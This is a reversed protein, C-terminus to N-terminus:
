RRLLHTILSRMEAPKVPKLLLECRAEKVAEAVDPTRDATLVVAPLGEGFVKRLLRVSKLGVEGNDLHYDALVIDPAPGGALDSAESFNRVAKTECGWQRLLTIMGAAIAKDNEIIVARASLNMQRIPSQIPDGPQRALALTRPVRLGFCSGRGEYSRLFIDHKLATSMRRVISLGLGFGLSKGRESAEGREFEQFIVEREADAIGPGTDYVAVCVERGRPRACILVHGIETYRVANAALNQVIRRLMLPDSMVWFRTRRFRLTIGKDVALPLLGSVISNFIENLDVPQIKPRLAGTELRSLDLMTRLLDEVISLAQDVQGVLPGGPQGEEIEALASLTLRAAQLPQLVDHGVATFFGTKIRNSREAGDRAEKLELNSRELEVLTSKLEETRSRAESGLAIVAQFLSAANEPQEMAREVRRMLARNIKTLKEIRREASEAQPFNEDIQNLNALTM